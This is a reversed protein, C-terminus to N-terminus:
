DREDKGGKLADEVLKAYGAIDHWSDAHNPDGNLIRSIKVAIMELSEKQYSSLEEWGKPGRLLAKLRQSYYSQMAYKGYKHGRAKLTDAVTGEPKMRMVMNMKKCMPCIWNAADGALEMPYECESCNQTRM